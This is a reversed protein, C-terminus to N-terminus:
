GRSWFGWGLFFSAAAGEGSSCKLLDMHAKAAGYVPYVDKINTYALMYIASVLPVWTRVPLPPVAAERPFRIRCNMRIGTGFTPLLTRLLSELNRLCVDISITIAAGSCHHPSRLRHRPHLLSPGGRQQLNSVKTNKRHSTQVLIHISSTVVVAGHLQSLCSSSPSFLQHLLQRQHRRCQRRKGRWWWWRRLPLFHQPRWM